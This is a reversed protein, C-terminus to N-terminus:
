AEKEQAGDSTSRARPGPPSATPKPEAPIPEYSTGVLRFAGQGAEFDTLFSTWDPVNAAVLIWRELTEASECAAIRAQVSAPVAGFRLALVELLDERDGQLFAGRADDGMM